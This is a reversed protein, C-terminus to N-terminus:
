VLWLREWDRQITCFIKIVEVFVSLSGSNRKNLIDAALALAWLLKACGVNSLKMENQMAPDTVMGQLSCFATVWRKGRGWHCKWCRWYTCPLRLGEGTPMQVELLLETLYSGPSECVAEREQSGSRTESWIRGWASGWGRESGVAGGCTCFGLSLFLWSRFSVSCLSPAIGCLPTPSPTM